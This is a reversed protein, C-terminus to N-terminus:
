GQQFHEESVDYNLVFPMMEVPGCVPVPLLM